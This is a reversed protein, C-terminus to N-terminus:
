ESRVFQESVQAVLVGLKTVLTRNMLTGDDALYMWQEMSVNALANGPDRAWTWTWHFTRGSATGRATGAMDDATAEFRGDGLRRMRWERVSAEGGVTLHQTMRLTDPADLTGETRTTVIAVPHGSRNERVGWSATRGTWFAVPDFAPSSGAFAAPKLPSACGALGALGAM